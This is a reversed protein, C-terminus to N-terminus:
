ILIKDLTWNKFPCNVLELNSALCLLVLTPLTAELLYLSILWQFSSVSYHAPIVAQIDLFGALIGLLFLEGQLYIVSFPLLKM